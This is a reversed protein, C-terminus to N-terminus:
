STPQEEVVEAEAEPAQPRAKLLFEVCEIVTEAAIDDTFLVSVPVGPRVKYGKAAVEAYVEAAGPLRRMSAILHDLTTPPVNRRIWEFNFVFVARKPDPYITWISTGKGGVQFWASASPYKGSGWYFRQNGWYMETPSDHDRAHAFVQMVRGRIPEPVNEELAQLFSAEDWTRRSSGKRRVAEEGYVEPVLIELDGDNLFRLELALIPLDDDTHANLYEITHKLEDTIEDVAVVLHFRGAALNSRLTEAFREPEFDVSRSEALAGMADVLDGKTRAEFTRRFAEIPMKHASSAYALIQGIVQRRIEPNARLKCEILFITGDTAIGVLDIPGVPLEVENAVLLPSGAAGPLVEPSTELLQQLAREDVFGQAAPERWTAEGTRRILM